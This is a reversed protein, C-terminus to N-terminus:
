ISSDDTGQDLQSSPPIFCNSHLEQLDENINEINKDNELEDNVHNVGNEIREDMRDM